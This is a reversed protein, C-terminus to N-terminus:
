QQKDSAFLVPLCCIFISIRLFGLRMEGQAICFVTEHQLHIACETELIWNIHSVLAASTNFAAHRTKEIKLM